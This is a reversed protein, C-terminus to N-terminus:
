TRPPLGRADVVDRYAHWTAHGIWPIALVFGLLLTLLAAGTLLMILVSWFVMTLPNEGVARISTTLATVMDVDRDLLMPASVVTAAFVLAAGLGGLTIWVPFLMSGESLVIHRIVSDLGTIPASVFLAFLVASVLVWATGALTLLLGLWVLPRTGRRWAAIVERMGPRRGAELQRSLEYLGTALIPGILLFGSFAGPLLYWFKLTVGLIIWGGVSVLMGHLLSPMPVRTLDRWGLALWHLPRTLAVQRVPPVPTSPPSDDTAPLGSV